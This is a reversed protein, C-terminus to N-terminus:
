LRGDFQGNRDNMQWLKVCCNMYSNFIYELEEQWMVMGVVIVITITAM